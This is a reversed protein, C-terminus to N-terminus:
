QILDIQVAISNWTGALGTAPLPDKQTKTLAYLAEQLAENFRSFQGVGNEIQKTTAYFCAAGHIVRFKQNAKFEKM